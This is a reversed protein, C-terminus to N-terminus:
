PHRGFFTSLDIARAAGALLLLSSLLPLLDRLM